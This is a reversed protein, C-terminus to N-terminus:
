NSRARDLIADLEPRQVLELQLDIHADDEVSVLKGLTAIARSVEPISWPISTFPLAVVRYTGPRINNMSFKGDKRAAAVCIEMSETDLGSPILTVFILVAPATSPQSPINVTGSLTAGGKNLTIILQANSTSSMDLYSGMRDQGNVAMSKIYSDPHPFRVVYRLPDCDPVNFTGDKQVQARKPPGDLIDADIPDLSIESIRFDPDTPAEHWALKGVVSIADPVRLVVDDIDHTGLEVTDRAILHQTGAPIPSGAKPPPPFHSGVLKLTYHGALVGRFDFNLTNDVREPKASGITQRESNVISLTLTEVLSTGTGLIVKGSIRFKSTERVSITVASQIQGASVSVPAASNLDFGSPYYIWNQVVVSKDKLVAKDKPEAVALRVRVYYKGAPLHELSYEGSKSTTSKTEEEFAGRVFRLAAVEVGPVPKRDDTLVTGAIKGEPDLRVDVTSVAGAKVDVTAMIGNLFGPAIAVFGYSGPTVNEFEFGGDPQANLESQPQCGAREHLQLCLFLVRAKSIGTGRISDLVHGHISGFDHASQEQAILSISLCVFCLIRM